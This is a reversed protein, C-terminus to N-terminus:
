VSRTGPAIRGAFSAADVPRVVAHLTLGESDPVTVTDPRDMSAPLTLSVMEEHPTRQWWARVGSGGRQDAHGSAAATEGVDEGAEGRSEGQGERGPGTGEAGEGRDRGAEGGEAEVRRYDGWRVAVELSDLGEGVLFSLGMSSPFFVKKAARRDEMSDDGLGVNEVVEAKDDVDADGRQRVPAGRPVLFGTLYWNSPRVWGPLRERVLAHGAGPGILYLRLAGVLAERVAASDSLGAM